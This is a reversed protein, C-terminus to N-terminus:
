IVSCSSFTKERCFDRQRCCVGFFVNTKNPLFGNWTKSKKTRVKKKDVIKPQKPLVLGHFFTSSDFANLPVNTYHLGIHKRKALITLFFVDGCFQGRKDNIPRGSGPFFRKKGVPRSNSGKLWYKVLKKLLAGLWRGTYHLFLHSIELKNSTYFKM